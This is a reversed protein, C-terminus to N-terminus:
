WQKSQMKSKQDFNLVWTEDQIVVEEMFNGPGDEYRSLFYRSIYLLTRKQDDTVMRQVWIASVKSMGLIDAQISHVAGFRICVESAISRLDRRGDCM